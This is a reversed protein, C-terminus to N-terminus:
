MSHRRTHILGEVQQNLRWCLTICTAFWQVLLCVVHHDMNKMFGPNSRHHLSGQHTPQPLTWSGGCSALNELLVWPGTKRSRRSATALTKALPVAAKMSLQAAMLQFEQSLMLNSYYAKLLFFSRYSFSRMSHSSLPHAQWTIGVSTPQRPKMPRVAVEYRVLSPSVFLALCLAVCCSWIAASLADLQIQDLTLFLM